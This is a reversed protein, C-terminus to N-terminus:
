VTQPTTEQNETKKTTTKRRKIAPIKVVAPKETDNEVQTTNKEEAIVVVVPDKKAKKKPKEEEKEKAPLTSKDVWFTAKFAGSGGFREGYDPIDYEPCTTTCFIRNTVDIIYYNGSTGGGVIGVCNGSEEFQLVCLVVKSMSAITYNAMLDSLNSCNVTELQNLTDYVSIQRPIDILTESKTADLKQAYGMAMQVVSDIDKRDLFLLPMDTMNKDVFYKGLLLAFTQKGNPGFTQGVLAFPLQLSERQDM